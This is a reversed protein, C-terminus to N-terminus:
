SRLDDRPDIEIVGANEYVLEPKYDGMRDVKHAIKEFNTQAFLLSAVSNTRRRASQFNGDLEIKPTARREIRFRISPVM